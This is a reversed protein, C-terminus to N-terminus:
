KKGKRKPRDDIRDLEEKFYDTAQETKVYWLTSGSTIGIDELSHAITREVARQLKYLGDDSMTKTCRKM